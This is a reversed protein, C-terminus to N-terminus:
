YRAAPTNAATVPSATINEWGTTKTYQWSDRCGLGDALCEAGDLDSFGGFSVLRELTSDFVVPADVRAGPAGGPVQKWLEGDFTWSDDCAEDGDVCGSTDRGGFIVIEGTTEDVAMSHRTRTPPLTALELSRDTWSGSFARLQDCEFRGFDDTECEPRNAGGGFALAEDRLSDWQVASGAYSALGNGAELVSWQTGDWAWTDDCPCSAGDGGFLLARGQEPDFVFSASFRPSPGPGVSSILEWDTGNWRWLGNCQRTLDCDIGEGQGGFLLTEDRSEDYVMAHGFRPSPSTAPSREIWRVGDFVWTDGVSVFGVGGFLVIEDRQPDYAAAHGARASPGDAGSIDSWSRGDFVWTDALSDIRSVNCGSGSESGGFIVLRSRVRDFVASHGTRAPPRGDSLVPAWVNGNWLWLDDCVVGDRLPCSNVVRNGGFLLLGDQAPSPTLTANCRGGPTVRRRVSADRWELESRAVPGLGDVDALAALSANDPEEAFSSGSLSGDLERNIRFSHPNQGVDARQKGNFTAIWRRDLVRRGQVGPTALDADSPNGAEDVAVVFVEAVAVSGIATTLPLAGHPESSVLAGDPTADAQDFVLIRAGSEVASPVSELAYSPASEGLVGWPAEVFVVTNDTDVDPSTPPSQDIAIRDDARVIAQNGAEDTASVWLRYEGDEAANQLTASFNLGARTGFGTPTLRLVAAEADFLEAAAPVLFAEPRRGSESLADVDVVAESMSLSVRLTAGPSLAALDFRWPNEGPEISAVVSDALIQPSTLDFTLGVNLPSVTRNGGE